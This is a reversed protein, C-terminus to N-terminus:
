FGKTKRFIILKSAIYNVVIVIINAVIKIFVDNFQLVDVFVYMCLGDIIGTALRCAFFSIVEKAVQKVGVASSHFVWKRNTIYAFTVAIVWAIITSTMTNMGIIHAAMWYMIVNVITTCVGFFMYPIVDIYKEYLKKLNM